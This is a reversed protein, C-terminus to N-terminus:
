KKSKIRRTRRVPQTERSLIEFSKRQLSRTALPRPISHTSTCRCRAFGVQTKEYQLCHRHEPSSHNEIWTEVRNERQCVASRVNILGRTNFSVSFLMSSPINSLALNICLIIKVSKIKIRGIKQFLQQTYLWDCHHDIVLSSKM